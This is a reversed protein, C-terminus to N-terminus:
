FLPPVDGDCKFERTDNSYKAAIMEDIDTIADKVFKYEEESLREDGLQHYTKKIDFYQRLKILESFPQEQLISNIM